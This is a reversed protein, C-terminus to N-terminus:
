TFDRLLARSFCVGVGGRACIELSLTRSPTSDIEGNDGDWRGNSETAGDPWSPDTWSWFYWSPLAFV